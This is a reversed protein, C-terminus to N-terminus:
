FSRHQMLWRKGMMDALMAWYATAILDKPSRRMPHSGTATTLASLENRRLHNPNGRQIFSMWREMASWDADIAGRDAYQLWATYPVIVGADGWGPAGVLEAGKFSM